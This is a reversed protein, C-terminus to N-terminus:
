DDDPDDYGVDAYVREPARSLRAAYAALRGPYNPADLDDFEPEEDNDDYVREAVATVARLHALGDARNDDEPEEEEQNTTTPQDSLLAPSWDDDNYDYADAPEPEHTVCSCRVSEQEILMRPRGLVPAPALLYASGSNLFMGNCQFSTTAVHEMGLVSALIAAMQQGPSDYFPTNWKGYANFLVFAHARMPDHVCSELRENLPVVWARALLNTYLNYSKVKDESAWLRLAMGGNEKLLCRNRNTRSPTSGWWCSGGNIFNDPHDDLMRTFEVYHENHGSLSQRAINGIEAVADAPLKIKHRKFLENALRKSFKGSSTEWDASGAVSKISHVDWGWPADREVIRAISRLASTPVQRRGASEIRAIRDSPQYGARLLVNPMRFREMPARCKSGMKPEPPHYHHEGHRVYQGCRACQTYNADLCDRCIDHRIGRLYAARHVTHSLRPEGCEVCFMPLSASRVPNVPRPNRREWAQRRRWSVDISIDKTELAEIYVRRREAWADFLVRHRRHSISMCHEFIQLFRDQGHSAYTRWLAILAAEQEACEGSGPRNTAWDGGTITSQRIYHAFRAAERMAVNPPQPVEHELVLDDAVIAM